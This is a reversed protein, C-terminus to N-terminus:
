GKYLLYLLNINIAQPYAPYYLSRDEFRGKYDIGWIGSVNDVFYNIASIYYKCM